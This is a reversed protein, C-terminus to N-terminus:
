DAATWHRARGHWGLRDALTAPADFVLAREFAPLRKKLALARREVVRWSLVGFFVSAPLSVAIIILPTVARGFWLVVLQQLPFAYVYIGYSFDGRRTVSRLFTPFRYAFWIACYPAALVAIWLQWRSGLSAAVAVGLALAIWPRWPVRDRFLYLAAGVLFAQIWAPQIPVLAPHFRQVLLAAGLMGLSATVRRGLLGITGLAALTVYAVVEGPLTWLSVNVNNRIPNHAFVGPLTYAMHVSTANLLAFNWTKHSSLYGGPSMTTTLPGVVLVMLAVAVLLGPYLRLVRKAAFRLLRPELSWSRMTLFGSMGFFVLVTSAAFRENGIVPLHTGALPFSHYILVSVAACLRVVGFANEQGGVREV